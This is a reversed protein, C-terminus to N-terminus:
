DMGMRTLKQLLPISAKVTLWYLQLVCSRTRKRKVQSINHRIVGPKRNSINLLNQISLQHMRQCIVLIPFVRPWLWLSVNRPIMYFHISSMLPPELLTVIRRASKSLLSTSKMALPDIMALIRKFLDSQIRPLLETSFMLQNKRPSRERYRACSQCKTTSVSPLLRIRLYFVSVKQSKSPERSFLEVM